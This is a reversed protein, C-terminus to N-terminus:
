RDGLVARSIRDSQNKPVAEGQDLGSDGHSLLPLGLSHPGFLDRAPARVKFPKEFFCVYDVDDLGGGAEELCYRIAQEPFGPDHKKRSFREEQAAAVIEGDDILAAASDHYFASIGLIRV